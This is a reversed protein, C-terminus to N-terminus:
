RHYQGIGAITIALTLALPVALALPFLTAMAVFALVGPAIIPVM